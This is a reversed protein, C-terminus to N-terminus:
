CLLGRSLLVSRWCVFHRVISYSQAAHFAGSRTALWGSEALNKGLSAARRRSSSARCLRRSPESLSMRLGEVQDETLGYVPKHTVLQDSAEDYLLVAMKECRVMESVIRITPM